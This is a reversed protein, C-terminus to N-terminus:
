LRFIILGFSIKKLLPAIWLNLCCQYLHYFVEFL